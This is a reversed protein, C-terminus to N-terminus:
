SGTPISQPTTPTTPRQAPRAIVLDPKEVSRVTALIAYIGGDGHDRIVPEATAAPLMLHLHIYVSHESSVRQPVADAILVCHDNQRKIDYVRSFFLYPRDDPNHFIAEIQASFIPTSNTPLRREWDVIADKASCLALVQRVAEATKEDQRQNAEAEAAEHRPQAETGPPSSRKCSNLLLLALLCLMLRM